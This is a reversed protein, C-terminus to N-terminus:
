KPKASRGEAGIAIAMLVGPSVGGSSPAGMVEVVLGAVPFHVFTGAVRKQQVAGIALAYARLQGAFTAAKAAADTASVVAAKHDVIVLESDSELVLDARGALMTGSDLQCAVSWERRWTFDPWRRAAWARLADSAQLLAEPRVAAAVRWRALLGEAIAIREARDLGPADAALFGHVAEGLSRMDPSGVLDVGTAIEEPSGATGPEALESPILLAPAHDKRDPPPDFGVSPEPATSVPDGPAVERQMVSIKRGAWVATGDPAPCALLPAGAVNRLQELVASGVVDGRGALVLRDRARTWGVYLLRLEQRGEVERLARTASHQEVRDHFSSKSHSGFPDPWFRILRGGLPNALDITEADSYARVRGLPTPSFDKSLEFLVVVPWELGKSRHWTIVNVADQHSVVARDDVDDAALDDLYAVLGLPTSATGDSECAGQYLTAHARLADLDALRTDGGPWSRCLERINLADMISDLAGVAGLDPRAARASRVAELWSAEAFAEGGPAKVARQLWTDPADPHDIIRSIEGMALSDRPDVWLRLGASLLRGHVTALLGARPLVARVGLQGLETALARCTDNTRCLVAIDGGRVPRVAGSSPDQIKLEARELLGRIAAAVCRREDPVNKALLSWIELAETPLGAAESRQAKLKVREPPVGHRAFAEAFLDSTTEVLVKRSRWSRGLTEPEKGRLIEDIAADMLSPDAGRFGFISQKQDGVWVSRRALASLKLFLALQIPSTDQFEDVLVLDLEGSLLEQVDRRELLQLALVEQDVFDIAGRERKHEGYATLARRALGFVLDISRELDARLRPHSLLAGAAEQMPVAATRSKAGPDAKGLALWDSWPIFGRSKLRRLASRAREVVTRTQKTGDESPVGALFSEIGSALAQELDGGDSADLLGTVEERCRAESAALDDIGNARAAAVIAKVCANWDFDGYRDSLEALEAAEKGPTLVNSLARRIEVDSAEEDLITLEPSLGLEFAFDSVLGHCVSNVTGIRAAALRQAEEFRGAKLLFTRVREQLEAAARNTFTTALIADPRVRGAGVEEELLKALRYTKGSGASASIIQISNM